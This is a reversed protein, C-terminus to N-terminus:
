SWSRMDTECGFRLTFIIAEWPPTETPSSPAEACDTSSMATIDESTLKLTTTGASTTSASATISAAIRM